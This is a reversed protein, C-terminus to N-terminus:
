LFKVNIIDSTRAKFPLGRMHIFHMTNDGFGGSLYGPIWTHSPNAINMRYKIFLLYINNKIYLIINLEISM